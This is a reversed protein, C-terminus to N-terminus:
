DEGPEEVMAECVSQAAGFDHPAAVIMPEFGLRSVKSVKITKAVKARIKPADLSLRFTTSIGM